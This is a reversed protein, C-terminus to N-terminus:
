SSPHPCESNKKVILDYAFFLLLLFIVFYKEDNKKILDMGQFRVETNRKMIERLESFKPSMSEIIDKLNKNQDLKAKQLYCKLESDNSQRGKEILDIDRKEDSEMKNVLEKMSQNSEFQEQHKNIYFKKLEQFIRVKTNLNDIKRNEIRLDEDNKAQEGQLWYELDVIEDDLEKIEDNLM